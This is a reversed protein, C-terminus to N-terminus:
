VGSHTNRKASTINGGLDITVGNIESGSNEIAFPLFGAQTNADNNNASNNLDIKLVSPTSNVDTNASITLSWGTMNGVSDRARTKFSYMTSPTLGAAEYTPSAQWTSSAAGYNTCEFYYECPYDGAADLATVAAMTITNPGTAAPVMQWRMSNPRPAIADGYCPSLIIAAIFCVCWYSRNISM